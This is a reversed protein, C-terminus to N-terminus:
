RQGAVAGGPESAGASGGAPAQHIQVSLVVSTVALLVAIVLLGVTLLARRQRQLRRTEARSSRSRDIDELGTGVTASITM